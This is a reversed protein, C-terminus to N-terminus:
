RKRRSSRRGGHGSSPDRETTNGGVSGGGDGDGEDEHEDPASRKRANHQSQNPGTSSTSPDKGARREARAQSRAEREREKEREGRRRSSRGSNGAASNSHGGFSTVSNADDERANSHRDEDNGSLHEDDQVHDQTTSRTERRHQSSREGGGKEKEKRSTNNSSSSNSGGGHRRSGGGGGGGRRSDGGNEDSNRHESADVRSDETRERERRSSSERDRERDRRDSSRRSSDRERRDGRKEREVDRVSSERSEREDKDKDEKARGEGGANGNKGARDRSEERDKRKSSFPSDVSASPATATNSGTAGGGGGGGGGYDLADSAGVGTDRDNYRRGPNKPGTPVNAPLAKGRDAAPGTPPLKGGVGSGSPGTPAGKVGQGRGAATMVGGRNAPATPANVVGRPGTPPVNSRGLGGGTPNPMGMMGPLMPFGAAQMQAMDMGPMGFFAGLESEPIGEMQMQQQMQLMQQQLMAQPDELTQSEQAMELKQGEAVNGVEAKQDEVGSSGKGSGGIAQDETKETKVEISAAPADGTEDAKDEGSSEETKIGVVPTSAGQPQESSTRPLPTGSGQRTAQPATPLGPNQPLPSNRAAQHQHMPNQPLGIGMPMTGPFGAPRMGPRQQGQQQQQQQPPPFGPMGNQGGFMGGMMGMGAMAQLQPMGAMGHMGGPASMGMMAMMQENSMGGAMGMMGGGAQGSMMSHMAQLQQPPIQMGPPMMSMMTRMEPPIESDREIANATHGSSPQNIEEAEKKAQALAEKRSEFRSRKKDSWISWSEENFGYNFYDSLDAGPRRWPKEDLSAVDIDFIDQSEAAEEEPQGPELPPFMRDKASPSLLLQPATSPVPPPPGEPRSLDKSTPPLSALAPLSSIDGVEISANNLKIGLPSAKQPSAGAPSALLQSRSLPTYESTLSSALPRTPTNQASGPRPPPVGPRQYPGRGYQQQPPPEVHSDIIFEIDSESDEDDEEEDEEEGEGSEEGNEQDQGEPAEPSTKLNASTLGPLPEVLSRSEEEEGGSVQQQQETGAAQATGPTAEITSDGYLFADEDDDM